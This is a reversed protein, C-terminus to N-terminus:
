KTQTLIVYKSKKFLNKFSEEATKFFKSQTKLLGLDYKKYKNDAIKKVFKELLEKINTERSKVNKKHVSYRWTPNSNPAIEYYPLGALSTLRGDETKQNYYFSVNSGIKLDNKKQFFEDPTGFFIIDDKGDFNIKDIALMFDAEETTDSFLTAILKQKGITNTVIKTPKM